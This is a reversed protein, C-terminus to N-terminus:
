GEVDALLLAVVEAPSRTREVVQDLMSSIESHQGPAALRALLVLRLQREIEAAAIERERQALLGSACLHNRHEDLVAILREIGDGTAASTRLVPPSWGVADGREGLTLMTSLDRVLREAGPLDSKNVVLVDAIELLGAKLTQVTDGLGPVQLVVVSHALRAIEVEDQGVGLTEILIPDFGGADLANAVASTTTALGGAHGRSAMSRIFVNPDGHFEMLRIRDGLTAGGTLPSTPDVAVVGVRRGEARYTGILRAILSSKGAGPPGTLGIRHARGTLKYVRSALARGSEDDNEIRSLLRALARREGALARDVLDTAPPSQASTEGEPTM